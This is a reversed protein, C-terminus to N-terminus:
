LARAFDYLTMAVLIAGYVIAYAGVFVPYPVERAVGPRHPKALTRTRKMWPRM